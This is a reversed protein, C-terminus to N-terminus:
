YEIPVRKYNGEKDHNTRITVVLVGVVLSLSGSVTKILPSKKNM